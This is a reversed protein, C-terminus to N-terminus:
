NNRTQVWDTGFNFYVSKGQMSNRDIGLGPDKKMQVTFGLLIAENPEIELGLSSADFQNNVLVSLKKNYLKDVQYLNGGNEGRRNLEDLLYQNVYNVFAAYEVQNEFDTINFHNLALQYGTNVVEMLMDMETADMVTIPALLANSPDYRKINWIKVNAQKAFLMDDDYQQGSTVPTGNAAAPTAKLTQLRAKLSGSNELFLGRTHKDGPAWKGTAMAGYNGVSNETYFMPGVNPVDDRKATIKLEGATVANASNTAEGKFLAFTGGGIVLSTTLLGSLTILTAKSRKKM